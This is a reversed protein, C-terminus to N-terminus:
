GRPTTGRRMAAVAASRVAAAAADDGLNKLDAEVNGLAGRAAAWALYRATAVDAGLAPGLGDELRHALEMVEICHEILAAQLRAAALEADHLPISPAAGTPVRRAAM